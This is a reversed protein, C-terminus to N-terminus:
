LNPCADREFNERVQPAHRLNHILGLPLTSPGPSVQFKSCFSGAWGESWLTISEGKVSLKVSIGESLVIHREPRVGGEGNLFSIRTVYNTSLGVARDRM